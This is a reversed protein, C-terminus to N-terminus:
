DINNKYKQLRLCFLVNSKRVPNFFCFSLKDVLESASPFNLPAENVVFVKQLNAAFGATGREGIWSSFSPIQKLVYFLLQFLIFIAGFLENPKIM